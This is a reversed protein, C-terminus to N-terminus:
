RAVARSREPIMRAFSVSRHRTEDLPSKKNADKNLVLPKDQAAQRRHHICAPVAKGEYFIKKIGFRITCPGPLSYMRKTVYFECRM